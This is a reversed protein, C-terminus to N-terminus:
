RAELARVRRQADLRVVLDAHDPSDRLMQRSLREFDQIFRTLQTESMVGSAGPDARRRLAEEQQARFTRVADFEPAALFVSLDLERWLAAYRQVLQDNVYRRFTGDPDEDRELANIPERLEVETQPRAGVCWGEFLVLDFPCISRLYQWLFGVPSGAGLGVVAVFM